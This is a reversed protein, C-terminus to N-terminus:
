VVFMTSSVLLSARRIFPSTFLRAVSSAISRVGSVVSSSFPSRMVPYTSSPTSPTLKVSEPPPLPDEVPVMVNVSNPETAFVQTAEKPLLVEVQDAADQIAQLVIDIAQEELAVTFVSEAGDSDGEAGIVEKPATEEAHTSLTVATEDCSYADFSTECQGQGIDEEIQDHSEIVHHHTVVAEERLHRPPTDPWSVADEEDDEIEEVQTLRKQSALPALSELDHASHPESNEKTLESAPMESDLEVQSVAQTMMPIGESPLQGLASDDGQSQSKSFGPAQTQYVPADVVQSSSPLFAQTMMIEPATPKESVQEEEADSDELLEFDPTANISGDPIQSSLTVLQPTVPEADNMMDIVTEEPTM